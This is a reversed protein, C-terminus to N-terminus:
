ENNIYFKAGTTTSTSAIPCSVMFNGGNDWTTPDLESVMFSATNNQYIHGFAIFRVYRWSLPIIATMSSSFSISGNQHIKFDRVTDGFSGEQCKGSDPSCKCGGLNVVWRIDEGSTLMTQIDSFSTLQKQESHQKVWINGEGRTWNCFIGDVGDTNNVFFGPKGWFIEAVDNTIWMSQIEENLDKPNEDIYRVHSFFTVGTGQGTDKIVGFLSVTGGFVPNDGRSRVTHPACGSTDFFYRVDSGNALHSILSDYSHLKISKQCDVILFSSACCLYILYAIAM